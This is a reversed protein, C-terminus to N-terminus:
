REMRQQLAGIVAYLFDDRRSHAAVPVALELRDRIKTMFAGHDFDSAGINVEVEEMFHILHSELELDPDTQYFAAMREALISMQLYPGYNDTM